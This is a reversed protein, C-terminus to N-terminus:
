VLGGKYRAKPGYFRLVDPWQVLFLDAAPYVLPGTGSRTHIRCWSEIYVVRAGLFKGVWSFPIAIESGTSIIVGPREKVLIRLAQLFALAMRWPSTGINPLLYVREHETLAETRACRYTVFFREYGEFAPLLVKM